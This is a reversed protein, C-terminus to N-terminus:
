WSGNEGCANTESPLNSTERKTQERIVHSGNQISDRFSKVMDHYKKSRRLGLYPLMQELVQLAKSGTITWSWCIKYHDERQKMESVYGCNFYNMFRYIIDKDTMKVSCQIRKRIKGNRVGNKWYGMTGEGEFVGALFILKEKESLSM